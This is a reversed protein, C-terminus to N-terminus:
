EKKLTHTRFAQVSVPAIPQILELMAQAYVQIEYQAHPHLRLELFHFLNHMNVTAFMHSYTALPLVLRALERPVGDSLMQHYHEFCNQYSTKLLETYIDANPHQEQTRSQKSSVSQTTIQDVTPIYCEEPLESYRASLENYSWTRHRHWQRFIFIPAKIAFTFTVSEFPSTHRNKILYNILKADKGEDEGSRWEADYSVRAARVVSLDNGMYDVLRVHGHDLVKIENKYQQDPTM